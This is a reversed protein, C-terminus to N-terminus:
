GLCSVFIEKLSLERVVLSEPALEHLRAMSDPRTQLLVGKIQRGSTRVHCLEILKSTDPAVHPFTMTVERVRGRLEALPESVALRGHQLFGVHTALTEVDDINHSSILITTGERRSAERLTDFFEQLVVADLGITPDDLVLLDPRHALAAVLAVKTRMGKSLERMRVDLPLEFTGLLHYAYAQDWSAEFFRRVFQLLDGVKMWDYTTLSEPVHGIRARVAARDRRPSRGFIQVRGRDARYSGLLTHILTTKGEGNRGLLAYTVGREIELDVGDLVMKRFHYSKHIGVACVVSRGDWDALRDRRLINLWGAASRRATPDDLAALLDSAFDGATLQRDEPSKAMARRVAATLSRGALREFEVWGQPQEHVIRYAIESLSNGSFARHGTVLEVAVCGLAFLDARPGVPRGAAQEPAM